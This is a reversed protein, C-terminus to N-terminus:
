LPSERSIAEQILAVAEEKPVMAQRLVEYAGIYPYLSANLEVQFAGGEAPDSTVIEAVREEIAVRLAGAYDSDYKERLLLFLKDM